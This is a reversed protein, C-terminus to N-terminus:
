VDQDLTPMADSPIIAGPYQVVVAALRSGCRAAELPDRGLLRAALYGANFSDGAATTDVVTEVEEAAVGTAIGGSSVFSGAQGMKVVIEGPGLSRIRSACSEADADGFLAQEDELTPLAIDCLGLVREFL